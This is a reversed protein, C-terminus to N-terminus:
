RKPPPVEEMLPVTCGASRVIKTTRMLEFIEKQIYQVYSGGNTGLSKHTVQAM